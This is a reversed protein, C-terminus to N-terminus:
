HVAELNIVGFEDTNYTIEKVGGFFCSLNESSLLDIM